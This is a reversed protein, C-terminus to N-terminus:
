ACITLSHWPVQIRYDNALVVTPVGAMMAMVSGHLRASIMVDVTLLFEHWSEVDYFFRVRHNVALRQRRLEASLAMYDSLTQVVVASDPYQLLIRTLFKNVKSTWPTPFAVAVRLDQKRQELLKQRRSEILAGLKPYPNLMLSPCGVAIVKTINNSECVARTIKGRVLIAPSARALERMYTVMHPALSIETPKLTVSPPQGIDVMMTNDYLLQTGIGLSLVPLRPEELASKIWFGRAQACSRTCVSKSAFPSDPLPSLINAEPLIVGVTSSRTLAWNSEAQVIITAEPDLLNQAAYRWVLNGM